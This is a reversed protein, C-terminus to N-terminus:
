GAPKGKSRAARGAKSLPGSKTPKKAPAAEDIAEDRARASAAPKEVPAKDTASTSKFRIMGREGIKGARGTARGM